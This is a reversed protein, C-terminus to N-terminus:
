AQCVNGCWVNCTTCRVSPTSLRPETSHQVKVRLWEIVGCTRSSDGCARERMFARVNVPCDACQPCDVDFSKVHDECGIFEPGATLDALPFAGHVEEPERVLIVNTSTTIGMDSRRQAAAVAALTSTDRHGASDILLAHRIERLANWSALYRNACFPLLSHSVYSVASQAGKASSSCRSM